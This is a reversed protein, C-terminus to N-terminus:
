MSKESSFNEEKVKEGEQLSMQPTFPWVRVVSSQGSETETDLLTKIHDRQWDWDWTKFEFDEKLLVPQCVLSYLGTQGAKKKTFNMHTALGM